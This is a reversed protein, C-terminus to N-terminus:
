AHLKNGKATNYLSNSSAILIPVAKVSYCINRKLTPSTQNFKKSRVLYIIPNIASGVSSLLFFGVLFQILLTLSHLYTLLFLVTFPLFSLQFAIFIILLTQTFALERRKSWKNAVSQLSHSSSWAFSSYSSALDKGISAHCSLKKKSAKVTYYIKYYCFTVILIPLILVCLLFCIFYSQNSSNQDLRYIIVCLGSTSFYSYKSWYGFLPLLTFILPICWNLVYLSSVWRKKKLWMLKRPRVIVLYRIIAMLTISNINSIFFYLPIAM